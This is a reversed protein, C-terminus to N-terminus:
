SLQEFSPNMSILVYLFDQQPHPPRETGQTGQTYQLFQQLVGGLKRRDRAKVSAQKDTIFSIASDHPQQSSSYIGIETIVRNHGRGALTDM